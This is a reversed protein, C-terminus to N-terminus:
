SKNGQMNKHTDKQMAQHMDERTDGQMNELLIAKFLRHYEGKNLRRNFSKRYQRWYQAEKQTFLPTAFDSYSEELHVPSFEDLFINLTKDLAQQLRNQQENANAVQSELLVMLREVQPNAQAEAVPQLVLDANDQQAVREVRPAEGEAKVGARAEEVFFGDDDSHLNLEADAFPDEDFPDDVLVGNFAFHAEEKQGAQAQKKEDAMALDLDDDWDDDLSFHVDAQKASLDPGPDADQSQGDLQEMPESVLLMYDAVEIMLGDELKINRGSALAKGNVKIPHGNVAAVTMGNKVPIFMGHKAAVKGTRDPLQLVCDFASGFDGGTKPVTFVRSPVQENEPVETIQITIAM